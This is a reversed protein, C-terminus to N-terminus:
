FIQSGSVQAHTKGAGVTPLASQVPAAQRPSGTMEYGAIEPVLAVDGVQLEQAKAFEDARLQLGALTEVRRVCLLGDQLAINVKGQEVSLLTGTSAASPTEVVAFQVLRFTTDGITVSPKCFPNSVPHYATARQLRQLCAIPVSFPFAGGFPVMSKSFYSRQALDQTRFPPPPGEVLKPLVDFILEVGSAICKHVLQLVGWKEEIAFQAQAVIEGADIEPTVRHWTVGFQTEGHLLAWSASNMGAYRPLPAEHYNIATGVLDLVDSRLLDFNYVSLLLDLRATELARLVAADRISSYALLTVNGEDCLRQIEQLSTATEARVLVLGITGIRRRILGTLVLKMMAGGNGIIGIRFEKSM